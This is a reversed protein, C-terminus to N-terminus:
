KQRKFPENFSDLINMGIVMYESYSNNYIDNMSEMKIINKIHESLEDNVNDYTNIQTFKTKYFDINVIINHLNHNSKLVLEIIDNKAINPLFYKNVIKVLFDTKYEIKFPYCKSVITKLNKNINTFIYIIPNNKEKKKSFDLISKFLKKDNTQIYNVDDIILSKLVKNNFMMTISKKYLTDNLYDDFNKSSKCFDSKIYM